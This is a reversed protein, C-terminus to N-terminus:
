NSHNRQSVGPNTVDVSPGRHSLMERPSTRPQSPGRASCTSVEATRHRDQLRARSKDKKTQDAVKPETNADMASAELTSNAKHPFMDRGKPGRSKINPSTFTQSPEKARCTSAGVTHQRDQLRVM